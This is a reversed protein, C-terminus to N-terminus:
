NNHGLIYKDWGLKEIEDYDPDEIFGFKNELNCTKKEINFPTNWESECESCCCFLTETSIDKVIEVWGQNCIPCWKVKNEYM